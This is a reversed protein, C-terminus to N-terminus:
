NETPITVPKGAKLDAIMSEYNAIMENAPEVEKLRKFADEAGRVDKKLAFASILHGLAHGDTPKQKLASQIFTVAKDPDPPTRQLFSVGLHILVDTDTSDVELARRFWKEAESYNKKGYYHQGLYSQIGIKGAETADADYAKKMYEVSEETMGIQYYMRAVREQAAFDKPNNKAKDMAERVETMMQQQNPQAPAGQTRAAPGGATATMPAESQNISKTIFFMAIFGIALGIAGFMYKRNM